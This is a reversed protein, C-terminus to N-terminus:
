PERALVRQGTEETIQKEVVVQEGSPWVFLFRHQGVWVTPPRGGTLIPEFDDIHVTANGPVDFVTVEVADPPEPMPAQASARTSTLFVSFILLPLSARM